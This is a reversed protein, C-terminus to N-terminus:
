KGPTTSPTSSAPPLIIKGVVDFAVSPITTGTGAAASESKSFGGFQEITASTLWVDTISSLVNLRVMLGAVSKFAEDSAIKGSAPTNGQLTMGTTQDLQIAKLWMEAPMILSIEEAVTGMPLRGALATNAVSVRKQAAAQNQEFVAFADASAKLQNVSEQRQQLEAIKGNALTSLSIWLVAMGVFLVAGALFVWGYWKEFRRRDLIERPLLNIRVM